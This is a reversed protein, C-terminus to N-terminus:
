VFTKPPRLLTDRDSAALLGPRPPGLMGSVLDPAAIGAQSPGLLGTCCAGCAIGCCYPGCGWGGDDAANSSSSTMIAITVARAVTQGYSAQAVPPAWHGSDAKTMAHHQHDYRMHAQAASPLATAAIAIIAAVLLPLFRGLTSM